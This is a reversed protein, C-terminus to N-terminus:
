KVTEPTPVHYGCGSGDLAWKRSRNIEMKRDIEAFLDGGFRACVRALVIVVDACEERVKAAPTGDVVARLLEAMEENARIAVRENTGTTGFAEVIWDSISKATERM